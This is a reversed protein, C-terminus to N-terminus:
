ELWLSSYLTELSEAAADDLSLKHFQKCYVPRHRSYIQIDVAKPLDFVKMAFEAATRDYINSWSSPMEKPKWGPPFSGDMTASAPCLYVSDARGRAHRLIAAFLVKRWGRFHERVYAPVSYAIDSQLIIIFWSRGIIRGLAFGIAPYGDVYIHNKDHRQLFRRIRPPYYLDAQSTIAVRLNVERKLRYPFGTIASVYSHSFGRCGLRKFLQQAAVTAGIDRRFSTTSFSKLRPGRYNSIVSKVYQSYINLSRAQEIFDM